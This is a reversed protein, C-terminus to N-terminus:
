FEGHLLCLFYLGLSFSLLISVLILDAQPLFEMQHTVYILTKGRLARMIYEQGHFLILESLLLGVIVEVSLM